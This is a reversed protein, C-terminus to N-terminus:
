PDTNLYNSVSSILDNSLEMSNPDGRQGQMAAGAVGANAKMFKSIEVYEALSEPLKLDKGTASKYAQQLKADNLLDTRYILGMSYNYMPIMYLTGKHMGVLDIMAPIFPKMDFGSREVMPGLDVLWAAEPFEGAWLFDVELVNYYSSAGTLQTVLKDHMESYVLRQFQVKIGTAKEFEPLMAEIIQSEPVD